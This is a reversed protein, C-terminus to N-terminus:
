LARADDHFDSISTRHVVRAVRALIITVTAVGILALGSTAMDVEAVLGEVSDGVAVLLRAVADYYVNLRSVQGLTGASAVVAEVMM